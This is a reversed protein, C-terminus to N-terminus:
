GAEFVEVVGDDGGDGVAVHEVHGDVTHLQVAEEETPTAIAVLDIPSDLCRAGCTPQHLGTIEDVQRVTCRSRVPRASSM